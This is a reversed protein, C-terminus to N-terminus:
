WLVYRREVKYGKFLSMTWSDNYSSIYNNFYSADVWASGEPEFGYRKPGPAWTSGHSNQLLISPRDKDDVGICCMCHPTYGKPKFFGNKDKKADKVGLSSAIIVPFGAAIADRAENYSNVKESHLLPHKRAEIKLNDTLGKRFSFYTKQNYKTLDDVGYKKKLLVGYKKLYKLIWITRAGDGTPSKGALDRGGIYSAVISHNGNWSTKRQLVGTVNLYDIATTVAIGVCDGKFQTITNWPSKTVKLYANCLFAQKGKGFGDLNSVQYFSKGPYRGQILGYYNSDFSPGFVLSSAAIKVFERREM